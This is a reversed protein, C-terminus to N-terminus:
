KQSTEGLDPARVLPDMSLDAIKWHSNQYTAKVSYVYSEHDAYCDLYTRRFIIEGPSIQQVTVLTKDGPQLTPLGEQPILLLREQASDWCTYSSCIAEALDPSFGKELFSRAQTATKAQVLGLSGDPLYEVQLFQEYLSFDEIVQAFADEVNASCLSPSQLHNSDASGVLGPSALCSCSLLVIIILNKLCTKM